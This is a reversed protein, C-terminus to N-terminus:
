GATSARAELAQRHEEAAIRQRVKHVSVGFSDAVDQYPVPRGGDSYPQRAEWMERAEIVSDPAEGTLIDDLSVYPEPPAQDVVAPAVNAPKTKAPGASPRAAGGPRVTGDVRVYIRKGCERCHTGRGRVATPFRHGCPCTVMKRDTM